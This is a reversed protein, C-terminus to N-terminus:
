PLPGIRRLGFGLATIGKLAFLAIVSLGVLSLPANTQLGYLALQFKWGFIAFIIGLPAILAFIMFIWCFTKIWWPLLLRRRLINEQAILNSDLVENEINEMANHTLMGMEIM